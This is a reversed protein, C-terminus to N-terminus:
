GANYQMANDKFFTKYSNEARYFGGDSTIHKPDQAGYSTM